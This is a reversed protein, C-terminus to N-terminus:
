TMLVLLNTNVQKLADVQPDLRPKGIAIFGNCTMRSFFPAAPVIGRADETPAPGAFWPSFSPLPLRVFPDRCIRM